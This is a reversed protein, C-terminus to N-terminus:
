EGPLLSPDWTPVQINLFPDVLQQIGQMHLANVSAGHRDSRFCM